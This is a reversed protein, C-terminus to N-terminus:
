EEKAKFYKKIYFLLAVTTVCGKNYPNLLVVVWNKFYFYFYFIFIGGEIDYLGFNSGNFIELYSLIMKLALPIQVWSQDQVFSL